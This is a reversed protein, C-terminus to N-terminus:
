SILGDEIIKTALERVVPLVEQIKRRDEPNDPTLTPHNGQGLTGVHAIANRGGEHRLYDGLTTGETTLRTLLPNINLNAAQNNIWQTTQGVDEQNSTTNLFALKITNYYCLFQYYISESNVAEKYYSLAQWQRESRQQSLLTLM